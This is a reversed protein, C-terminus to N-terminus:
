LYGFAAPNNGLNYNVGIAEFSLCSSANRGRLPVTTNPVDAYVEWQEPIQVDGIMPCAMFGKAGFGHILAESVNDGYEEFALPCQISGPAM